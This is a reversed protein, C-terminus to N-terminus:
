LSAPERVPHIEHTCNGDRTLQRVGHYLYQHNQHEISLNEGRNVIMDGYKEQLDSIDPDSLDCQYHWISASPFMVSGLSQRHPLGLLHGLEHLIVCPLYYSEYDFPDFSFNNDRSNIMIDVHILEFYGDIPIGFYNTVALVREDDILSWSNYIGMEHDLFSRLIPYEMNDVINFPFSFFNLWPVSEDWRLAMQEFIHYGSENYEYENSPDILDRSISINLGNNEKLFHPNWRVPLDGPHYDKYQDSCGLFIITTLILIKM